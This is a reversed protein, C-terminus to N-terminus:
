RLYRYAISAERYARRYTSCETRAADRYKEDGLPARGFLQNAVMTCSQHHSYTNWIDVNLDTLARDDWRELLNRGGAKNLLERLEGVSTRRESGAREDGSLMAETQQALRDLTTM